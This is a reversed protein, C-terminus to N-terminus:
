QSGLPIELKDMVQGDNRILAIFLLKREPPIIWTLTTTNNLKHIGEEVVDQGTIKYTKPDFGDLSLHAEARITSDDAGYANVHYWVELVTLEDGPEVDLGTDTVDRLDLVQAPEGNVTFVISAFSANPPELFWATGNIDLRVTTTTFNAVEGNCYTVIVVYLNTWDSQFRWADQISGDNFKDVRINTLKKYGASLPISELTVGITNILQPRDYIEAWVECNPVSKPISVWLDFFQLINGPGVPIGATSVNRLDILRPDFDDVKFSLSVLSVFPPAETIEMKASGTPTVTPATLILKAEATQTANLPIKVSNIGSQYTLFAVIIGAIATVAVPLVKGALDWKKNAITEEDNDEDKKSVYHEKAKTM